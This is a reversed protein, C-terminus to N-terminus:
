KIRFISKIKNIIKKFFPEKYAQINAQNNINNEESTMKSTHKKFIDDPNYRKRLEEQHKEENYQFLKLLHEKEKDSDCWYKLHLLSIMAFTDKKINQKSLDMDSTYKPNYSDLKEEKIMNFLSKPLRSIYDEGLMDLLSYVESYMEKTQINM